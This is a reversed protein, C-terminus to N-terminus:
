NSPYLPICRWRSNYPYVDGDQIILTYMKWRGRLLTIISPYADEDQIILTYM